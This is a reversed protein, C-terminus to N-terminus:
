KIKTPVLVKKEILNLIKSAFEPRVEDDNILETLYIYNERNKKMLFLAKNLLFKEETNLNESNSKKVNMPSILSIQLHKELLETIEKFIITDGNFKEIHTGFKEHIEFALNDIAQIFPELPNKSLIFILRFGRFESMLIISSKFELKITQSHHSTGTLEIGFSSIAMLFGSILTPEIFKGKFHKEYVNLGSEKDSVMIYNLNLTDRIKYFKELEYNEKRLKHSKVTKYVIISISIILSSLLIVWFILEPPVGKLINVAGNPSSHVQISYTTIGAHTSNYWYIEVKWEGEYIDGYSFLITETPNEITESYEELGNPDFLIIKVIGRSAPSDVTIKLIQGEQFEASPLNTELVSNQSFASIVLNQENILISSPIYFYNLEENFQVLETINIENILVTLNNWTSPYYYALSYNEYIKNIVHNLEWINMSNEQIIVTGSINLLNKLKLEINASFIIRNSSNTHIPINFVNSNPSIDINSVKLYGTGNTPGDLITYDNSDLRATTNIIEPYFTRNSKVVLKYLHPKGIGEDYWLNGNHEASYLTTEHPDVDNYAWYFYTGTNEPLSLGNLVLYYDGTELTLPTQFSQYYWSPILGLNLTQTLYVNEMDPIYDVPDYGTVQIYIDIESPTKYGYIYIGYITTTETLTIQTGRGLREFKERYIDNYKGVFHDEISITDNHKKIESFNMTIETISWLYGPLEIDISDKEEVMLEMETREVLSSQIPFEASNGKDQAISSSSLFVLCLFSISISVLFLILYKKFPM